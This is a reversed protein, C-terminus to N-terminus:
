APAAHRARLAAALAPLVVNVDGIVAYDARSMIPAEADTNIAVMVKASQCGALHQIAGSIGCALYLDPSVRTGTQGVQESHPRWGLSTVARSVGVAGGLLSALEEIAEFGEVGGVGRGGSVVVRANALSVGGAAERSETASVVTDGDELQPHFPQVFPEHREAGAKEDGVPSVADTAVTFLVRPAALVADEILSGAWRQRSLRWSSGVGAAEFCNAVMPLGTIAGAHALVENGHDTAAAVVSTAGIEDALQALARGWALPSYAAPAPFSVTRVAAVGFRALAEATTAIGAPAGAAAQPGDVSPDGAIAAVVGGGLSRAFTVARLSADIPEANEVEVFCLATM